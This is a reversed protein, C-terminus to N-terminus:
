ENAAEIKAIWARTQQRIWDLDAPSRYTSYAYLNILKGKLLIWTISTAMPAESARSGEGVSWKAALLLSLSTDSEHFLHIARAEGIKMTRLAQEYEHDPFEITGLLNPMRRASQEVLAAHQRRVTAKITAFESPKFIREEGHRLVQATFHREFATAGGADSIDVISVYSALLRSKAPTIAEIADQMRLAPGTPEAYGTPAPLFIRAAGVSVSADVAKSPVVGLVLLVALLPFHFRM